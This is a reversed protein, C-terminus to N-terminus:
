RCPYQRYFKQFPITIMNEIQEPTWIAEYAEADTRGQGDLGWPWWSRGGNSLAYAVSANYHADLLLDERWWSQGSFAPRNIQFLGLDYDNYAWHGPGISPDGGSERMAIAWAERLNDGRFGVEFLVLALPDAAVCASPTEAVPPLLSMSHRVLQPMSGVPQADSRAAQVVSISGFIMSVFAFLLVTLRLRVPM